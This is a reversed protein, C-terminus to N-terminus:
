SNLSCFLLHFRLNTYFKAIGFKQCWIHFKLLWLKFDLSFNTRSYSSIQTVLLTIMCPLSQKTLTLTDNVNQEVTAYRGCVSM